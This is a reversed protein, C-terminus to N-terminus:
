LPGATTDGREFSLPASLLKWMSALKLSYSTAGRSRSPRPYFCTTGTRSSRTCPRGERVLPARISAVLTPLQESPALRGERVLPARISAASQNICGAADPRGERVLPARISAEQTPASNGTRRRGERVLPARISAQAVVEVHLQGGTAGRSRSPRPYFGGGCRGRRVPRRRGERVLPARISAILGYAGVRPGLDGREFSLPASLLSAPSPSGCVSM